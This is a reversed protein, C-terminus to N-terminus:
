KKLCVASLYAGIAPEWGLELADCIVQHGISVELVNPVHNLFYACNDLSLDHGANIGINYASLQKALDVFPAVAENKNQFFMEAYPGTYLEVRDTKTAVLETFNSFQSDVFLSTRIAQEHMRLICKTLFEGHAAVNWGFSSTLAEPPDPVFTVQHPKVRVVHNLFDDTPYGEINFERKPYQAVLEKLVVLDSYCIHRQDPRPHVTIGQVGLDLAKKAFESVNPNNAGRSNRILAIKNVNISLATM